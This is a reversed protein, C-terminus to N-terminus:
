CPCRAARRRACRARRLPRAWSAPGRGTRPQSSRQHPCGRRGCSTCVCSFFFLFFRGHKIHVWRPVQKHFKSTSSARPVQKHFKSTSSARPVQKHFKSTSSARPVQEHFRSTSSARSVQEHFRSTSSAQSVQEHFRSTFGAQPVQKHFKSTFGARPVQVPPSVGPHRVGWRVRKSGREVRLEGPERAGLLDRLPLECEFCFWVCM